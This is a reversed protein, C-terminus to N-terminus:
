AEWPEAIYRFSTPTATRIHGLGPFPFHYGLVRLRDTAAMELTRRRTTSALAPDFDFSFHWDPRELFLVSHNAVDGLVLLQHGASEVLYSMHGPTHGPTAQAYLGPLIEEDPKVRRVHMGSQGVMRAALDFLGSTAETRNEESLWFSAEQGSVVLEANPFNRTGDATLVGGLHDPHFHTILVHTISAPDIGAARIAALQRGTNPGFLGGSGTDFLVWGEPYEVLLTNQPASVHTLPLFNAELLDVVEQESSANAVVTPIIPELRLNGDNIVVARHEGITFPYFLPAAALGTPADAVAPQAQVLRSWPGLSAAGVVLGATGTLM